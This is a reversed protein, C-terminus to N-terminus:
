NDIIIWEGIKNNWEEPYFKAMGSAPFFSMEGFYIKQNIVYLDVRVFPINKSLKSAIQIMEDFCDPKEPMITLMKHNKRQFPALQWDLTFFSLEENEQHEYRSFYLFKPEGNFCYFKYDVLDETKSDQMYEECLIKRPVNKYPWERSYRFYNFKLAKSLMKRTKKIDLKSKDKCIVLGGSDHTVKLVFKDPLEKFNIKNANDWSNITKIVHEKGIIDSVYDKVALKDVLKTYEPNRDYLKLYQLKQTFSVPNVLNLKEKQEIRYVFKLYQSDTLLFAVCKKGIKM